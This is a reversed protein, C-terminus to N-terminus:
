ATESHADRSRPLPLQHHQSHQFGMLCRGILAARAVSLGLGEYIEKAHGM